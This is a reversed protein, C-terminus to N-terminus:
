EGPDGQRARRHKCAEKALTHRGSRGSTPVDEADFGDPLLAKLEGLWSRQHMRCYIESADHNDNGM